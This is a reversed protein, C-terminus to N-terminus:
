SISLGPNDHGIHKVKCKAVNFPMGRTVARDALNDTARQLKLRGEENSMIQGVKTDDALKKVVVILTVVSDLEYTFVMFLAPSLVSGQPM